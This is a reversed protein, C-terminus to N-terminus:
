SAKGIRNKTSQFKRPAYGVAALRAIQAETEAEREAKSKRPKREPKDAVPKGQKLTRFVGDKGAQLVTGDKQVLCTGPVVSSRLHARLAARCEAREAREARQEAAYELRELRKIQEPDVYAGYRADHRMSRESQRKVPYDRGKGQHNEPMEWARVASRSEAADALEQSNQAGDAPRVQVNIASLKQGPKLTEHFQYRKVIHDDPSNNHM